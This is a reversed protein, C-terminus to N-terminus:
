ASELQSLAWLYFANHPTWYEGTRWDNGYEMQLIPEDKANGAIGNVIGGILPGVFHSFPYSNRSGEGTMLCAGFPNAGMVWELQRIALDRYRANGFLRAAGNLLAAHGELHSTIGLWWSRQRTPMFYRYTLEGELARYTEQTPSGLYVGLPVIGYASRASMPVVYEDIYMRLSDRWRLAEGHSPFASILELMALAPMASYVPDTYPVPRAGGTGWFGRVAKQSGTYASMQLGALTQGLKAAEAAYKDARTARNLEIAALVRWSLDRVQAPHETAEWCRVGAALCAQAYGPDSASFAQAVMGQLAVFMAQVMAPKAPNIYRDDATGPQNDTWHNDSNDGSVGGATDAWCRGDKDQMKLFYRNGWRMEDLLVPLGSGAPDWNEGLHRAVRLLGFGAMMTADMWKRLDGADHWGGTVDIHEGTDRRRADDLHCAPHVNPVVVGCRQAHHYSVAKPLTRRWADPRVFFPACREAGAAIEYNAERQIDSFDGTLCAGLDGPSAVLPRTVATPRPLYGTDRISFNEPPTVGSSIRYIVTKRSRPLFGIQSHVIVPMAQPVASEVAEARPTADQPAASTGAAIGTGLLFDRRHM